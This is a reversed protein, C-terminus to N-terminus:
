VKDNVGANNVLADIRGFRGKTETVVRRCENAKSLEAVIGQAQRGAQGLETTLEAIAQRDRDIIVPIAGEGASARAIAAGIGKGGGTILVVKSNLQFDMSIRPM